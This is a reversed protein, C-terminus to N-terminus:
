ILERIAFIVHSVEVPVFGQSGSRITYRSIESGAIDHDEELANSIAATSIESSTEVDELLREEEGESAM